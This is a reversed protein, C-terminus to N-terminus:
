KIFYYVGIGTVITTVIGLLWSVFARATRQRRKFYEEFFGLPTETFDRGRWTVVLKESEKEVYIYEHAISDVLLNKISPYSIQPTVYKILEKEVIGEPNNLNYRNLLKVLKKQQRIVNFLRFIGVVSLVLILLTVAQGKNM